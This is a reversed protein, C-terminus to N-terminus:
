KKDEIALPEEFRKYSDASNVLVKCTWLEYGASYLEVDRSCKTAIAANISYWCGNSSRRVQIYKRESLEHIAKKLTAVSIGCLAALDNHKALLANTKDMLGLLEDFVDYSKHPLDKLARLAARGDPDKLKLYRSDVNGMICQM